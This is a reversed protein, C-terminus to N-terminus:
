REKDCFSLSDVVKQYLQEMRAYVEGADESAPVFMLQYLRGNRVIMIQRNIDQGPVGDLVVAEQGAITANSRKIEFGPFDAVREDAAQVATRGAADSLKIYVRPESVNLLSGVVLVTEDPNPREVSYGSPYLLCYGHEENRLLEMGATVEPCGAATAGKQPRSKTLAAVGPLSCAALTLMVFILMVILLKNKM